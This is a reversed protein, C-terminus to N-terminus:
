ARAPPRIGRFEWDGGFATSIVEESQSPQAGFEAAAGVPGAVIHNALRGLGDVEVEVVDGPQVPRSNAPTGSLLV